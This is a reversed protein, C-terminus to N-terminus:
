VSRARWTRLIPWQLTPLPGGGRLLSDRRRPSLARADGERHPVDGGHRRRDARTERRPAPTRALAVSTAVIECLRALAREPSHYHGVYSHAGLAIDEVRDAYSDLMTSALSIWPFYAAYIQDVHDATSGPQAALALLAHVTLSSRRPRASSSGPSTATTRSSAARGVGSSADRDARTSSTTSRASRSAQPRASCTRAARREFSPLACANARPVGRRAGAPLRRRRGHTTGTTTPSRAAPSSRRPSRAICSRATARGHGDCPRESVTDLYDVM